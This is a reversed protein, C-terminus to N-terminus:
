KKLMEEKCYELLQAQTSALNESEQFNSVQLSLRGKKLTLRNSKGTSENEIELQTDTKLVGVNLYTKKAPDFDDAVKVEINGYRCYSRLQGYRRDQKIDASPVSVEASAALSYISGGVSLGLKQANGGIGLVFEALNMYKYKNVPPVEDGLTLRTPYPPYGWVCIIIVGCM